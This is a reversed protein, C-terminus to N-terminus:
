LAVLDEREANLVAKLVELLTVLLNADEPIQGLCEGIVRNRGWVGRVPQWLDLRLRLGLRLLSVLLSLWPSLIGFRGLLRLRLDVGLLAIGGVLLNASLRLMNEEVLLLTKEVSLLRIGCLRLLLIDDARLQTGGAGLMSGIVGISSTDVGLLAVIIGLLTEGNRMQASDVRLMSETAGMFIESDGLLSSSGELLSSVGELLTNRGGLFAGVGGLLSIGVGLLSGDDEVLAIGGQLIRDIRLQPLSPPGSSALLGALLGTIGPLFGERSGVSQHIRKSSSGGSTSLAHGRENLVVLLM